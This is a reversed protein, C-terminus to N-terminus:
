ELIKTLWAWSRREHIAQVTAGSVKFYTAIEVQSLKGKLYYIELVENEKLISNTRNRGKTACDINNQLRTGATLHAPNVCLGNDCDHLICLETQEVHIFYSIRHALWNKSLYSFNGYKIKRDKGESKRITGEWIWCTETKRISQWFRCQADLPLLLQEKM